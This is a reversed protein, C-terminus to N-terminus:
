PYRYYIGWRMTRGTTTGNGSARFVTGVKFQTCGALRNLTSSKLVITTRNDSNSTGVLSDAYTVTTSTQTSNRGIVYVDAAISDTAVGIIAVESCLLPDSTWGPLNITVWGTTDDSTATFPSYTKFLRWREATPTTQGANLQSTNQALGVTVTLMLLFAVIMTKM